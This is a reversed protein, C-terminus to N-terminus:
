RVVRRSGYASPTRFIGEAATLTSSVNVICRRTALPVGTWTHLRIPGVLLPVSKRVVDHAIKAAVFSRFLDYSYAPM